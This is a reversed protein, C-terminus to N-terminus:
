YDALRLRVPESALRLVALARDFATPFTEVRVYGTAPFTIYLAFVAPPLSAM